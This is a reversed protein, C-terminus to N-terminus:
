KEEKEEKSIEFSIYFTTNKDVAATITDGVTTLGSLMLEHTKFTSTAKELTSGTSDKHERITVLVSYSIKQDEFDAFADIKVGVPLTAGKTHQIFERTTDISTTQGPVVTGSPYRTYNDDRKIGPIVKIRDVEAHSPSAFCVLILLTILIKM